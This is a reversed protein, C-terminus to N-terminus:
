APPRRNTEFRFGGIRRSRVCNPNPLGWRRWPSCVGLERAAEIGPRYDDLDDANAGDVIVDIGLKAGFDSIRTFIHRKCYYCRLPDNRIYDPLRFEETELEEHMLGIEEAVRRADATERPVMGPSVATVACANSGLALSAAKAAVASDLGGSLAVICREYGAFVTVLADLKAKATDPLTQRGSTM